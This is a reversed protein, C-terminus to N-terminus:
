SSKLIGALMAALIQQFENTKLLGVVLEAGGPTVQGDISESQVNGRAQETVAEIAGLTDQLYGIWLNLKHLGGTISGAAIAERLRERGWLLGEWETSAPCPAQGVGGSDVEVNGEGPSLDKKLEDM